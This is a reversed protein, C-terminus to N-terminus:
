MRMSLVADFDWESQLFNCSASSMSLPSIMACTMVSWSAAVSGLDFWQEILNIARNVLERGIAGIFGDDPM